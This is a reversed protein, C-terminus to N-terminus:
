FTVGITTEPGYYNVQYKFSGNKYDTNMGRYGITTFWNKNKTLYYRLNLNGNWLFGSSAGGGIDGRLSVSMQDTLGLTLRAGVFPDVWQFTKDGALTVGHLPLEASGKQRLYIHRAGALVEFGLNKKNAGGIAWDAVKYTGGLEEILSWFTVEASVVAGHIEDYIKLYFGDYFVSFRGKQAIIRGALIMSVEDIMQPYDTLDIKVKSVGGATTVSGGMQPLWGYPEITVQLRDSTSAGTDAWAAASLFVVFGFIVLLCGLVKKM